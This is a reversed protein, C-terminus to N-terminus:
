GEGTGIVFSVTTTTSGGINLTGFRGAGEVQYAGARGSVQKCADLVMRVGTAGVPHGGGILGGSPNVPIRGGIALDGNEIAKWSERSPSASTTSPPTSRCPSAITPRSATSKTWLSAPAPSPTPSRAASTRCSTATAPAAPSNRTWRCASRATVGASSGPWRRAAEHVPPRVLVVGAGGDTIQLLDTRRVRGEVVPNAADDAEFSEPTFTWKRTQALPQGRANSFNLRAIERLHAEDVGYRRDYEDTLASFMHPWM